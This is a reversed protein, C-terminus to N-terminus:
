NLFRVYATGIYRRLAILVHVCVNHGLFWNALCACAVKLWVAPNFTLQYTCKHAYIHVLNNYYMFMHILVVFLFVYKIPRDGLMAGNYQLALPVSAQDAFEVFAFRFWNICIFVYNYVQIYLM